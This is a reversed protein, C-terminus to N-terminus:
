KSEKKSLYEETLDKMKQKEKDWKPKNDMLREQRRIANIDRKLFLHKTSMVGGIREIFEIM